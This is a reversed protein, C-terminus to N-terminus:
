PPEGWIDEFHQKELVPMTSKALNLTSHIKKSLQGKPQMGCRTELDNKTVKTKYDQECTERKKNIIMKNYLRLTACVTHDPKYTDIPTSTVSELTYMSTAKSKSIYGCLNWETDWSIRVDTMWKANKKFTDSWIPTLNIYIIGMTSSYFGTLLPKPKYNTELRTCIVTKRIDNYPSLNVDSCKDKTM